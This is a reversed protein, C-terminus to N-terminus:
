GQNEWVKTPLLSQEPQVGNAGEPVGSVESIRRRGERWIRYYEDVSVEFSVKEEKKDIIWGMIRALTLAANHDKGITAKEFLSQIVKDKMGGPEACVSEIRKAKNQLLRQAREELKKPLPKGSLTAEMVARIEQENKISNQFYGETVKLDRVLRAFRIYSIHLDKRFEKQSLRSEKPTDLWDKIRRKTLESEKNTSM